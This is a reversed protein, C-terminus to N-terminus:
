GLGPFGPGPRRAALGRGKVLPHPGQPGWTCFRRRRNASPIEGLATRWERTINEPNPPAPTNPPQAPRRLHSFPFRCVGAGRGSMVSGPPEWRGWPASLCPSAERQVKSWWRFPGRSSFLSLASRSPMGCPPTSRPHRPM